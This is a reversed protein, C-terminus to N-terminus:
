LKMCIKKDLERILKNRKLFGMRDIFLIGELHDIEHQIVRALIGAADMKVHEGKLNLAELIIREPRVIDCSIEPVSLCGECFISRGKKQTIKPNILVLEKSDEELAEVVIICKSIGIQPAALGVGKAFRMTELMYQSLIIEEETIKSIRSSRQRLIKDPYKKIELIM